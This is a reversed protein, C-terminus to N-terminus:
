NCLFFVLFVEFKYKSFPKLVAEASAEGMDNTVVIKYRGADGVELGKIKLRYKKNKYDDETSFRQDLTVDRGDCQWVVKPKPNAKITAEWLIVEGVPATLDKFEEIIPVIRLNM